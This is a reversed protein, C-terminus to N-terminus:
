YNVGIRWYQPSRRSLIQDERAKAYDYCEGSHTPCTLLSSNCIGCNRLAGALVALRPSHRLTRPMAVAPDIRDMLPGNRARSAFFLFPACLRAM